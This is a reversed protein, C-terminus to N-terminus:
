YQPDGNSDYEVPFVTLNEGDNNSPSLTNSVRIRVSMCIPIAGSLTYGNATAWASKDLTITVTGDAVGSDSYIGTGGTIFPQLNTIFAAGGAGGSPVASSLDIDTSYPFEVVGPLAAGTNCNTFNFVLFTARRPPLNGCFADFIRGTIKQTGDGIIEADEGPVFVDNDNPDGTGVQVGSVAQPIDYDGLNPYVTVEMDGQVPGEGRAINDIPVPDVKIVCNEFRAQIEQLEDIYKATNLSIPFTGFITKFYNLSFRCKYWSQTWEKIYQANLRARASEYYRLRFKFFQPENVAMSTVNGDPSVFIKTGRGDSYEVEGRIMENDFDLTANLTATTFRLQVYDKKYIARENRM